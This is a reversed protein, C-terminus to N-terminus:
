AGACQPQTQLPRTRTARIPPSAPPASRRPKRRSSRRSGSAFPGKGYLGDRLLRLDEYVPETTFTWAFAIHAAGTGAIDGYYNARTASSLVSVLKALDPTQQPHNVYAFPSRVPQGDPGKLRDTLIVAYETKEEMPLLPQMILTDSEREYWTLLDDVGHIRGPALPGLTNPHDLVGDFDLDLSPSYDAQTLGAGEEVTEFLINQENIKPDNPWYLDLDRPTLPFNGDGMDLMVPVGTTLNIVYVPDNTFDHGDNQMRTRVDALDIAADTPPTGPERTFAVTIPAFTGWGEMAGFGHRASEEMNTPAIVSVNIRRGTRSTPDAFTAVDNPQPIEPLPQREIDFVIEPGTGSPTARLGAPAQDVSCHAGALALTIAVALRRM